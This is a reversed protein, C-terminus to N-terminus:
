IGVKTPIVASPNQNKGIFEQPMSIGSERRRPFSSEYTERFELM